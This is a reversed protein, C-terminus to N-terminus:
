REIEDVFIWDNDNLYYVYYYGKSYIDFYNDYKRTRNKNMDNRIVSYEEANNAIQKANAKSLQSIVINFPATYSYSVNKDGTYKNVINILNNKAENSFNGYNIYKNYTDQITFEGYTNSTVYNSGEDTSVFGSFRNGTRKEFSASCSADWSSDFGHFAKRYDTGTVVFDPYRDKAIEDAKKCLVISNSKNTYYDSVFFVGIVFSIILVIIILIKFRFRKKTKRIFPAHNNMDIVPISQDSNNMSDSNNNETKGPKDTIIPKNNMLEYYCVKPL